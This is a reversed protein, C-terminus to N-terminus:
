NGILILHRPNSPWQRQNQPVSQVEIAGCLPKLQQSLQRPVNEYGPPAFIGATQTSLSTQGFYDRRGLKEADDKDAAALNAPLLLPVSASAIFHRRSFREKPFSNNNM